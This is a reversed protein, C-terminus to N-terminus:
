CVKQFIWWLRASHCNTLLEMKMRSVESIGADLAIVGGEEPIRKESVDTHTHVEVRHKKHDLVIRISGSFNSYGTLPNATRKHPVLGMGNLIQHKKKAGIFKETVSYMDADLVFSRALKAVPRDDRKRRIVRRLDNM